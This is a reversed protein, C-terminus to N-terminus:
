RFYVVHPNRESWASRDRAVGLVQALSIQLSEKQSEDLIRQELENAIAELSEKLNFRKRFDKNHTGEEAAYM